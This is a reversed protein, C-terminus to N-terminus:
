TSQSVGVARGLQERPRKALLLVVREPPCFQERIFHRDRKLKSIPGPDALCCRIQLLDGLRELGMQEACLSELGTSTHGQEVPIVVQVNDARLVMDGRRATVAGTFLVLNEKSRLEMSDADIEIPGTRADQTKLVDEAGFALPALATLIILVLLPIRKM